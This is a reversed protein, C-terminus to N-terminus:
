ARLHELVIQLIRRIPEAAGWLLQDGLTFLTLYQPGMNLKRIRGVPVTLTGSVAAPTLEKLTDPKNNAVVKVWANAGAIINIIEDLPIDKTLKITLAQSHCRMSGVRVCLGDIPIPTANGLIKNTEAYGKWEERTQGSDMASDIWPILSAALPAGFYETPYSPGGLTEIVRRDLDLATAAPNDLLDQSAKGISAMQAVLERMNNAGAGSAAQYTMSTAWEVLGQKFLSGIGMLMLSVTCNGGIYDKIGRELGKDIVDRNVPDLVIISNDQMRLSSAADLWYGKWGAARIEPYVKKTYDGGQCTVVIDADALAKIDYADKLPPIDMGIQPGKGGVQSTTFFTAEFGKFDDEKLMRDMLVSGVMGRWGVFAVRLM